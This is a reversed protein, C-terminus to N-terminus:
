GAPCAGPTCVAAGAYSCCTASPAKCTPCPCTTCAVAGAYPACKGAVCFEGPGCKKGCDGCRFLDRSLDACSSGVPFSSCKTLGSPCGSGCVGKVCDGIGCGVFCAGCNDHDSMVNKCNLCGPSGGICGKFGPACAAKGDTCVEGHCVVKGCGGCNKADTKTNVCVGGCVEGTCKCVGAVCSTGADCAKGCVGCNGPDTATDTCAAGCKTKPAVCDADGPADATETGEEASADEGDPLGEDGVATDGGVATDPENFAASSGGCGAVAISGLWFLLRLRRM